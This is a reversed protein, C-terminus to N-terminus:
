PDPYKEGILNTTFFISDTFKIINELEDIPKEWHEFCEFVTVAELEVEDLKREFGKAFINETYKDNWYFDLGIDRMIRTFIGYGAAFDLFSKKRDLFFYVIPLFVQSSLQNRKIQGTDGLNMSNKYAEDLWFPKETQIFRCSTCQFYKVPYTKLIVKSFIYESANECIQCKESKDIMKKRRTNRRAFYTKKDIEALKSRAFTQYNLKNEHPLRLTDLCELYDEIAVM